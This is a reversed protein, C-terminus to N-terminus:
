QPVIVAVINVTSAGPDASFVITLQNPALIKVFDVVAPNIATALNAVAISSTTVGALAVTATASGGAYSYNFAKINASLQLASLLTGGNQVTGKVDSFTAVDGVVTAGNVSSVLAKAPNSPAIGSDAILGTTGSFSAFDGSVVPLVVNGSNVWPNLTIINGNFSPQFIGFANNLYSILFVDSPYYSNGQNVSSNLYGASTVTAYNDNCIIKVTRPRIGIQGTYDPNINFISM